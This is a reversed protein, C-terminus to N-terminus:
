KVALIKPIKLLFTNLQKTKFLLITDPFYAFAIFDFNKSVETTSPLWFIRFKPIVLYIQQSAGQCSESCRNLSWETM